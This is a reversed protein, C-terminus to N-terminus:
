KFGLSLLLFIVSGGMAGMSIMMTSYLGLSRELGDGPM